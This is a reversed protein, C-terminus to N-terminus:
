KVIGGDLEICKKIRAAMGVYYKKLMQPTIEARIEDLAGQLEDVNKYGDLPQKFSLRTAM